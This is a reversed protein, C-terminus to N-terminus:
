PLPPRAVLAPLLLESLMGAAVLAISVLILRRRTRWYHLPSWTYTLLPEALLAVLGAYGGLRLFTWWPLTLLTWAPTELAALLIGTSYAALNLARLLFWAGVLGATAFSGIIIGTLEGLRALPAAGFAAPYVGGGFFWDVVAGRVIFGGPIAREVREGAMLTLLLLTIFQLPLWVALVHLAGQPRRHHIPLAVFVTLVLAQLIPMFRHQGLLAPLATTLLAFFAVTVLYIPDRTISATPQSM